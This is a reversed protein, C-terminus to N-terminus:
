GSNKWFIESRIEISHVNEAFDGLCYVFIERGGHRLLRPKVATTSEIKGTAITFTTFLRADAQYEIFSELRSKELLIKM